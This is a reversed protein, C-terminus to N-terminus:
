RFARVEPQRLRSRIGRRSPLDSGLVDEDRYLLFLFFLLNFKTIAPGIVIALAELKSMSKLLFM